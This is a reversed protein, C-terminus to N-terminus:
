RNFMRKSYVEKRQTKENRLWIKNQKIKAIWSPSYGDVICRLPM